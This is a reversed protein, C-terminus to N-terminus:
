DQIRHGGNAWTPSVNCVEGGEVFVSLVPHTQCFARHGLCIAKGECGPAEDRLHLHQAPEETGGARVDWLERGM